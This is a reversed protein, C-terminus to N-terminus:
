KVEFGCFGYPPIDSLTVQDGQLKGSCHVCTIEKYSEGLYIKPSFAIDEHLNWLGVSLAGDKKSCLLYMGPNQTPVPRCNKGVSFSM